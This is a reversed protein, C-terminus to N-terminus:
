KKGQFFGMSSLINKVVQTGALTINMNPDAADVNLVFFYPHKNEEVWGLVWGFARGQYPVKAVKFVFKFNSNEQKDFMDRVMEQTPRFFPLQNFYLKKILGLQEDAQLRLNGDFVADTDKDLAQNGYHLSDVWKRLSDIGVSDHVRRFIEGAGPTRFADGVTTDRIVAKEDKIVGSQFAILSAVIDFTSGAPYLSDRYRPLNYVTFHGQGNDYLAFCGKVGASDFFRGLSEDETVDNISCASFLVALVPLAVLLKRM